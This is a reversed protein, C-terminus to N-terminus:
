KGGLYGLSKLREILEDDDDSGVVVTQGLTARLDESQRRLDRLMRRSKLSGSSWMSLVNSEAPDNRLDYFQYGFQWFHPTPFTLFKEENTRVGYLHNGVAQLDMLAPEAPLSEGRMLPTIDRGQIAAPAEIGALSLLTPMLDVHRVQDEVVRGADFRGPWRVILPVRVVEEFLTKQHGKNGHEFFEEGHDATVVLLTSDLGVRADVKALIKALIDDTFRIEGDYLAILHALDRPDMNRNVADNRMLFESDLTGTYDPDFMRAYEAPPIYDYHPDWLHVFLFFPRDDPVQLWKRVEELTRPGTIDSHPATVEGQAVARMADPMVDTGLKTMCSVYSEFGQDMGYTPHLYPAGYFGGTRYGADRLVEALTVIDDGLRLGNDVLGHTYSYLGTFMTAHAPLTWSTTSVANEFRVGEAALRDIGPTTPKGYGYCGVHDARLSDISVLVINPNTGPKSALAAPRSPRSPEAPGCGPSVFAGALLLASIPFHSARIRMTATYVVAGHLIPSRTGSHM